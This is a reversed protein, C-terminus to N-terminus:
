NTIEVTGRDVAHLLEVEFVAGVATALLRDDGGDQLLGDDFLDERV